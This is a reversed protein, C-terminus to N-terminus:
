ASLAEVCGALVGSVTFVFKFLSFVQGASAWTDTPNLSALQKWKTSLETVREATVNYAYDRPAQCGHIVCVTPGVNQFTPGFNSGVRYLGSGDIWTENAGLAAPLGEKGVTGDYIVQMMYNGSIPDTSRGASGTRGLQAGSIQGRFALRAADTILRVGM